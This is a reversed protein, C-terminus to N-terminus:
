DVYTATSLVTGKRALLEVKVDHRGPPLLPKEFALAYYGALARELRDMALDPFLHTKVYFGGTDEALQELGIELSHSDAETIDLSFVVVRADRLARRAPMYEPLMNVSDGSMRGLGWGFFALSKTGPLPALANALVLFAAEPSAAKLAAARDYGAALSPAKGEIKAPPDEFLISREVVGRVRNRDTTFDTWLKLHTDFSVVAVRDDPQLSDLLKAAHEKMRLLGSVRSAQSLDKQFFFVLLRGAPAVPGGTGAAQAPTLGEAYPTSGSIWKLSEVTAPKGDVSVRVDDPSLGMLPAGKDDVIRVDMLVRSVEVRDTFQPMQEPLADEQARAPLAHLAAMFAVLGLIKSIV